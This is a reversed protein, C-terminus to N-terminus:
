SEESEDEGELIAREYKEFGGFEVSCHMGCEKPADKEWWWRGARPNEDESVPRTCPGCGISKFNKDYLGNYPVDNEKIYGWVQDWTWDALPNIKVIGQHEHDIEIKKLNYRSAWQGRRLGTIWADLDELANVLPVVKRIQCCLLRLPVSDYFLNVGYKKVMKHVHEPDPTYVEFNLDYRKEIEAMLEYDEEYLRGTDVVFARSEPNIKHVMDLVVVDPAQLSSAISIRPHFTDLAWELVEKPAKDEFEVAHESAQYDDLEVRSESM